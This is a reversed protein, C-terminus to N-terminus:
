KKGYECRGGIYGNPCQCRYMGDQMNSDRICHGNNLCPNPTCINIMLDCNTGGYSSSCQCLYGNSSISCTGNNQCPNNWCPNAGIECNIGIFISQRKKALHIRITVQQEMQVFVHIVM